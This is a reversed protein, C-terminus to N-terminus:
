DDIGMMIASNIGIVQTLYNIDFKTNVTMPPSYASWKPTLTGYAKKYLTANNTFVGLVCGPFYGFDIFSNIKEDVLTWNAASVGLALILTSIVMFLTQKLM